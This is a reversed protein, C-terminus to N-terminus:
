ILKKTKIYSVTQPKIGLEKSISAGSRHLNQRIFEIIDVTIKSKNNTKPNRLGLKFARKNNEGVTVIELNWDNNNLKDGYVHDVMYGDPIEGIHTITVLIHVYPHVRSFDSKYISVQRYGRESIRTTLERGKYVWNFIGRNNQRIVTRTVSRVKGCNSAQYCGEFGPIDKWIEVIDM